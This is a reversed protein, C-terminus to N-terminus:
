PHSPKYDTGACPPEDALKQHSVFRTYTGNSAYAERLKTYEVTSPLQVPDVAMSTKIWALMAENLTNQDNQAHEIVETMLFNHLNREKTNNALLVQAIENGGKGGELASRLDERKKEAIRKDANIKNAKRKLSFCFCGENLRVSNLFFFIMRQPGSQFLSFLQSSSVLMGGIGPAPM